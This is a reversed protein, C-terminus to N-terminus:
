GLPTRLARRMRASGARASKYEVGARELARAVRIVVTTVDDAESV